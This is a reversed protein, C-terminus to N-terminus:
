NTPKAVNKRVYGMLFFGFALDPKHILNQLEEQLHSPEELHSLKALYESTTGVRFSCHAEASQVAQIKKKFICFWFVSAERGAQKAHLDRRKVKEAAKKVSYGLVGFGWFGM